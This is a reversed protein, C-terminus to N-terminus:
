ERASANGAFKPTNQAKLRTSCRIEKAATKEPREPDLVVFHFDLGDDDTDSSQKAQKRAGDCERLGNLEASIELAISLAHGDVTAEVVAVVRM